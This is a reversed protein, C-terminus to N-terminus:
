CLHILLNSNLRILMESLCALAANSRVPPALLSVCGFQKLITCTSQRHVCHSCLARFLPFQSGAATHPHAVRAARTHAQTHTLSLAGRHRGQNVGSGGSILGNGQEARVRWVRQHIVLGIQICGDGTHPLSCFRIFHLLKVYFYTNTHVGQVLRENLGRHTPTLLKYSQRTTTFHESVIDARAIGFRSM